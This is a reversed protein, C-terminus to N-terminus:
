QAVAELIANAEEESLQAGAMVNGEADVIYWDSGDTYYGLTAGGVQVLMYPTGDDLQAEAVDYAAFYENSGDNLYAIQDGDSSQFFCLVADSSGDNVYFGSDYVWQTESATEGEGADEGEEEYDGEEDADATTTTSGANSAPADSGGCGALLSMSMVSAFLIAVLRKKM